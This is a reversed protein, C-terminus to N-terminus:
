EWRPLLQISQCWSSGRSLPAGILVVCGLRQSSLASIIAAMSEHPIGGYYSGVKPNLRLEGFCSERKEQPALKADNPFCRRRSSLIFHTAAGACREPEICVTELKIEVYESYNDPRDSGQNISFSYDPEWTKIAFVFHEYEKKRSKGKAKTM